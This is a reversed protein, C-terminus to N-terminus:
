YYYNEINTENKSKIICYKENVSAEVYDLYKNDPFLFKIGYVVKESTTVKEEYYETSLSYEDFNFNSAVSANYFEGDYIFNVNNYVNSFDINIKKGIKGFPGNLNYYDIYITNPKINTSMNGMIIPIKSGNKNIIDLKLKYNINYSKIRTEFTSDKDQFKQVNITNDNTLSNIDNISNYKNKIKNYNTDIVEKTINQCLKISETINTINNLIQNIQNEIISLQINSKNIYDLNINNLENLKDLMIFYNNIDFVNLSLIYKSYKYENNKEEKMGKYENIKEKTEYIVSSNFILKELSHIINNLKNLSINYFISFSNDNRNMKNNNYDNIEKQLNTEFKTKNNGYNDLINDYNDIYKIIDKFNEDNFKELKNISLKNKYNNYNYDFNNEIYRATNKNILYNIDNFKPIITEYILKEEFFYYIDQSIKFTDFYSNYIQITCNTINFLNNINMEIKDLDLTFTIKLKSFIENKYNQITLNMNDTTINVINTYEIVFPEVTFSRIKDEYQEKCKYNNSELKLKIIQYIKNSFKSAFSSDTIISNIYKQIFYTSESNIYKTLKSILNNLIENRKTNLINEINNFNLIGYQINKPLNLQRNSESLNLYYILTEYLSYNLNNYLIKIKEIENSKINKEFLDVFFPIFYNLMKDFNDSIINIINTNFDIKEKNIQENTFKIFKTKIKEYSDEKVNNFRIVSINKIEYDKGEMNNMIQKIKEEGKEISSDIDNIISESFDYNAVNPNDNSNSKLLNYLQSNYFSNIEKNIKSQINSFSVVRDLYFINEKYLLDIKESAINMYEFSLANIENNLIENLNLSMNLFQIENVNEDMFYNRFKIMNSELHNKCFKENIQNKFNSLESIIASYISQYITNKYNMLRKEISIVNYNYLNKNHSLRQGENIIHNKIKNLIEDLIDYISQKSNENFRNLGNSFISYIKEELNKKTYFEKNLKNRIIERYQELEDNFNNKNNNNLKIILDQINKALLENNNIWNNNIIQHSIDNELKIFNDKYINQFIDNKKKENINYELYYKAATLKNSYNLKMNIEDKIIKISNMIENLQANFLNIHENKIDNIKFFNDLKIGLVTEQKNINLFNIKSNQIKNILDNFSNNIQSYRINIIDNYAEENLPLSNLFDSSFNQIKLNIFEYYYKITYNFDIKLKEFITIIYDNLISDNYLKLYNSATFYLENISYKFSNKKVIINNYLVNYINNWQQLIDNLFIPLINIIRSQYYNYSANLLNNELKEKIINILYNKTGNMYISENIELIEKQKTKINIDLDSIYSNYLSVDSSFNTYLEHLKKDLIKSYNSFVINNIKLHNNTGVVNLGEYWIVLPTRCHDYCVTKGFVKVYNCCYRDEGSERYKDYDNLSDSISKKSIEEYINIINNKSSNLKDLEIEILNEISPLYRQVFLEEAVYNNFRELLSHISNNQYEAFSSLYKQYKQFINDSFYTINQLLFKTENFLNLYKNRLDSKLDYKIFNTINENNEIFLILHILKILM